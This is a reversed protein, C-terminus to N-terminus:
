LNNAGASQDIGNQRLNNTRERVNREELSLSPQHALYNGLENKRRM